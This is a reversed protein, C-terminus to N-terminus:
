CSAFGSSNRPSIDTAQNLYGIIGKVGAKIYNGWHGKEYPLILKRLSFQIEAYEPNVNSVRVIGSANDTICLVIERDIACPLVTGNNYDLHEGILNVRGPAKLFLVKNNNTFKKKIYDLMDIHKHLIPHSQFLDINLEDCNKLM